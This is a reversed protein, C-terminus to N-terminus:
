RKIGDKRDANKIADSLDVANQPYYDRIWPSEGITGNDKVVRTRRWKGKTEVESSVIRNNTDKTM